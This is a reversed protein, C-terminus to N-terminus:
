VFFMRPRGPCPRSTLSGHMTLRGPTTTNPTNPDSSNWHSRITREMFSAVPLLM